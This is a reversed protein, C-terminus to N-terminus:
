EDSVNNDIMGLSFKDFLQSLEGIHKIILEDNQSPNPYEKNLKHYEDELLHAILSLDQMSLELQIRRKVMIQEM